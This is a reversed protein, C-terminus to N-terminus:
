TCYINASDYDFSLHLRGGPFCKSCWTRNPMLLPVDPGIAIRAAADCARWGCAAQLNAEKARGTRNVNVCIRHICGKGRLNTLLEQPQCSLCIASMMGTGARASTAPGVAKGGEMRSSKSLGAAGDGEAGCGRRILESENTKSM